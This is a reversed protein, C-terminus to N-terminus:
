RAARGELRMLRNYPKNGGILSVNIAGIGTSIIWDAEIGAEYLAQYVGAQYAGRPPAVV